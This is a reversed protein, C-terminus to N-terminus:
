IKFVTDCLACLYIFKINTDDYRICITEREKKETNTVCQANPCLIKNVRPLTPDYKTFPNIMHEYSVASKKMNVKSVCTDNGALNNDKNDCFRCYYMLKEADEPDIQIYYMNSCVTCFHM